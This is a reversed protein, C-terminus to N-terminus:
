RTTSRAQSESFTTIPPWTSSRPSALGTTNEFVYNHMATLATLGDYGAHAYDHIMAMFDPNSLAAHQAERCALLANYNKVLATRIVEYEAALVALQAQAQSLTQQLEELAQQLEELTM